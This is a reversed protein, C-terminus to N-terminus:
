RTEDKLNRLGTTLDEHLKMFKRTLVDEGESLDLDEFKQSVLRYFMDGLRHKILSYTIKQGDMRAGREVSLEEKVQKALNYSHIINRMMWVSKYFLCYNDYPTFATQALYDKRLLKATQFFLPTYTVQCGKVIVSPIDRPEKYVHPADHIQINSSTKQGLFFYMKFISGKGLILGNRKKVISEMVADGQQSEQPARLDEPVTFFRRPRSRISWKMAQVESRQHLWSKFTIKSDGRHLCFFEGSAGMRNFHILTAIVMGKTTRGREM